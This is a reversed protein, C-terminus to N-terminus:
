GPAAWTWGRSAATAYRALPMGEGSVAPLLSDQWTALQEASCFLLAYPCFCSLPTDAPAPRFGYETGSGAVRGEIVTLVIPRQCAGCSTVVDANLVMASAIGVADWACWCWLRRGGEIRLQHATETLSLGAIGTLRGEEDAVARRASVLLAVADAAAPEPIGMRTALCETTMRGETLLHWFATQRVLQVLGAQTESIM